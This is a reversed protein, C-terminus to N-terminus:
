SIELIVRMSCGSAIGRSIDEREALTLVRRLRRRAPPAIGVHRALLFRISRHDTRSCAVLGM